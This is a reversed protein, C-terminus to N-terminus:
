EEAPVDRATFAPVRQKLAPDGEVVRAHARLELTAPRPPMRELDAPTLFAAELPAACGQELLWNRLGSRESSARAEAVRCEDRSRLVVYLDVDSLSVPRGGHEVWVAEGAGHSGSLLMASRRPGAWARAKALLPELSGPAGSRAREPGREVPEASMM